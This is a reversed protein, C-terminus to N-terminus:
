LYIQFPNWRFDDLLELSSSDLLDSLSDDLLELSSSFPPLLELVALISLELLLFVASGVNLGM